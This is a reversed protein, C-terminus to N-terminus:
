LERQLPNSNDMVLFLSKLLVMSPSNKSNARIPKDMVMLILGFRSNRSNRVKSLVMRTQISITHLNKLGNQFKKNGHEDFESMMETNDDIIGNGNKDWVLFGDGSGPKMWETQEKQDHPDFYYRGLRGGHSYGWDATVWEGIWKQM